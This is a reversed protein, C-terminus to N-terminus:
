KALRKEVKTMYLQSCCAAAQVSESASDLRHKLVGVDGTPAPAQDLLGAAAYTVARDLRSASIRRGARLGSGSCRRCTDVRVEQVNGIQKRVVDEPLWHPTVASQLGDVIEVARHHQRGPADGMEDTANTWLEALEETVRESGPRHESMM